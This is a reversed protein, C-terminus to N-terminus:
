ASPSATADGELADKEAAARATSLADCLDALRDCVYQMTKVQRQSLEDMKANTEALLTNTRRTNFNAGNLATLASKFFEAQERRMRIVRFLILPPSAVVLIWTAIVLIWFLAVLLGGTAHFLEYM